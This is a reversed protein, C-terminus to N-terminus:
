FTRKSLLLFMILSIIGLLSFTILTNRIGIIDGIAGMLIASFAAIGIVLVVWLSM